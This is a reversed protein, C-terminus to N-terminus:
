YSGNIDANEGILQEILGASPTDHEPGWVLRGQKDILFYTPIAAIAYEELMPKKAKAVHFTYNNESIINQIAENNGGPFTMAVVVLGKDKYTEYLQQVKPMGKLCPGCQTGWFDLLVVNDRNEALSLEPGFWKVIELEPVVQPTPGKYKAEFQRRTRERWSFPVYGLKNEVLGVMSHRSGQVDYKEYYVKAEQWVALIDDQVEKMETYDKDYASRFLLGSSIGDLRKIADEALGKRLLETCEMVRQASWADYLQQDKQHFHLTLFSGSMFAVFLLVFFLSLCLFWKFVKKM